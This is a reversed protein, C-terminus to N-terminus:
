KGMVRSVLLLLVDLAVIGIVIWMLARLVTHAAPPRDPQSPAIDGSHFAPASHIGSHRGSTSTYFLGTGPIGVTRRVGRPGFTVHAGRVGISLSAGSKSLNVSLGPAIHVRRFLRIPM